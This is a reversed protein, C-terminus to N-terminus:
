NGETFTDRQAPFLAADGGQLRFEALATSTQVAGLALNQMLQLAVGALVNARLLIVILLTNTEQGAESFLAIFLHCSPPAPDPAHQM